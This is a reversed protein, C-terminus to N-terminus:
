LSKAKSFSSTGQLKQYFTRKVMSWHNRLASRPHVGKQDQRGGLEMTWFLFGLISLFPTLRNVKQQQRRVKSKFELECSLDSSKCSVRSKDGLELTM